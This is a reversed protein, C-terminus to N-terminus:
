KAGGKRKATKASRKGKASPALMAAVRAASEALTGRVAEISDFAGAGAMEEMAPIVVADAFAAAAKRM